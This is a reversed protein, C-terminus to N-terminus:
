NQHSNWKASCWLMCHSKEQWIKQKHDRHMCVSHTHNQKGVASFLAVAKDIQCQHGVNRWFYLFVHPCDIKDQPHPKSVQFPSFTMVRWLRLIECKEMCFRCWKWRGSSWVTHFLGQRKRASWFFLSYGTEPLRGWTVHQNTNSGVSRQVSPLTCPPLHNLSKESVSFPAERSSRESLSICLQLSYPWAFSVEPKQLAANSEM